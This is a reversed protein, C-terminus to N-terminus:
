SGFAFCEVLVFDPGMSRIVDGVKIEHPPKALVLGGSRGRVARLYGAKTLANAIKMLHARSINYVQSAEEFEARVPFRPRRGAEGFM